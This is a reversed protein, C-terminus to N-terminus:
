RGAQEQALRQELRARAGDAYARCGDPDALPAERMMRAFLNSAGPHPTVLVECPLAAVKAYTARLQAVLGPHDAFRYGEAAPSSLSDAYVITRCLTPHSSCSRWSWSTSGATHGPTAHATLALPGLRVTGGDTIIRDVHVPTFGHLMAGQPDTPDPRGSELVARAEARGVLRAGTARQLATLGGAHDFHEHSSLLIRVQRPRLGLARINVLILPAAEAPGGDILVHGAPSTILIASVGCTGVYYTDGFIRAPPAPDTWGDKGRCAEALVGADAPAARQQQVALALAALSAFM